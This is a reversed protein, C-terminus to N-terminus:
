PEETLRAVPLPIDNPFLRCPQAFGVITQCRPATSATKRTVKRTVRWAVEPYRPQSSYTGSRERGHEPMVLAKIIGASFWDNPFSGMIPVGSEFLVM